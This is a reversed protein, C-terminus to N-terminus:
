FPKGKLLYSLIEKWINRMYDPLTVNYKEMLRIYRGLHEPSCIICCYNHYYTGDMNMKVVKGKISWDWEEKGEQDTLRAFEEAGTISNIKGMAEMLTMLIEQCCKAREHMEGATWGNEGDFRLKTNLAWLLAFFSNGDFLGLVRNYNMDFKNHISVGALLMLWIDFEVRDEVYKVGWDRNALWEEPWMSLTLQWIQRLLGKTCIKGHGHGKRPLALDWIVQGVTDNLIFSNDSYGDSRWWNQGRMFQVFADTREATTNDNRKEGRALIGEIARVINLDLAESELVTGVESNLLFLWNYVHEIGIGLLSSMGGWRDWEVRKENPQRKSCVIKEVMLRQAGPSHKVLRLPAGRRVFIGFYPHKMWEVYIKSIVFYERIDDLNEFYVLAQLNTDRNLGLIGKMIFAEDIPVNESEDNQQMGEKKAYGDEGRVYKERTRERGNRARIFANIKATTLSGGRVLKLVFRLRQRNRIIEGIEEVSKRESKHRNEAYEEYIANSIEGFTTHYKDGTELPPNKQEMGRASDATGILSLLLAAGGVLKSTKKM